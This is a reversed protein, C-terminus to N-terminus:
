LAAAGTLALMLPFLGGLGPRGPIQVVSVQPSPSGGAGGSPATQAVATALALGTPGRERLSRESAESLVGERVADRAEKSPDPSRPGTASPVTQYYQDAESNGPPAIVRVVAGAPVPVVLTILLALTAI